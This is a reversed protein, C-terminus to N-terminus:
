KNLELCGMIFPGTAKADNDRIKENIYYEYSGNRYPNGGLGAVACCKTLSLTGDDNKIILNKMIGDFAKKATKKYKKNIYNKNVAKAISYMFMSSVSAELYNGERTGQDIVQYWLGTKNQYKPLVEALQNIIDIVEKRQPHNKPVFDMVDVLAMFYWGMARGWFHPSQGTTKNAWLQERSEDYAHYLLGTEPDRTHKYTVILEHIAKDILDPRNFQKGYQAMFPGAMYIGDLWIQHPYIKKHWFVSDSTQPHKDLQSLLTDMAMKYKAKGSESYVDFLIKGSNIFDINYDTTNYNLISGNDQIMYNAWQYVYDYYKKDHTYKWTKLMATCGLGQTYGFVYKTGYDIKWAEPFRKMESNAFLVSIKQKDGSKNASQKAEANIILSFLLLTIIFGCYISNKNQMNMDNIKNIVANSGFRGM